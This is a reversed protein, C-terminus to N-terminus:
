QYLPLTYLEKSNMGFCDKLVQEYDELPKDIFENDKTNFMDIGNPDIEKENTTSSVNLWAEKGGKELRILYKEDADFSLITLQYGNFNSDLFSM